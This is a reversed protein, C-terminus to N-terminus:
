QNRIFMNLILSVNMYKGLKNMLTNQNKRAIKFKEQLVYETFEISKKLDNEQLVYETFEISKKLDSM